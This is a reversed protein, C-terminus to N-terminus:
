ECAFSFVHSSSTVTTVSPLGISQSDKLWITTPSPTGVAVCDLTITSLPLVTLTGIPASLLIPPSAGEALHYIIQFWERFEHLNVTICKEHWKAIHMYM